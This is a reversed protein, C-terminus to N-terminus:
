GDLGLLNLLRLLGLSLGDTRLNLLLAFCLVLLQDITSRTVRIIGYWGLSRDTLRESSEVGVWCYPSCPCSTSAPTHSESSDETDVNDCETFSRRPNSSFQSSSSSSKRIYAQHEMMMIYHLVGAVVISIETILRTVKDGCKISKHIALPAPGASYTL